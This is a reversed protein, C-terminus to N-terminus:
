AVYSVAPVLIEGADEPFRAKAEFFKLVLAFGSRNAGSKNRLRERDEELLTWVEVPDKAGAGAAGRDGEPRWSRVLRGACLGRHAWFIWFESLCVGSRVSAPAREAETLAGLLVLGLKGLPQRDLQAPHLQVPVPERLRHHGAAALVPQLRRRRSTDGRAQLRRLQNTM